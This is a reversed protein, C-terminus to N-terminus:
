CRDIVYWKKKTISFMRTQKNGAVKVLDGAWERLKKVIAKGKEDLRELGREYDSASELTELVRQEDITNTDHDLWHEDASSITEKRALKPTLEDSRIKIKKTFKSLGKKLFRM